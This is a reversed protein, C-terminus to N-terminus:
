RGRRGRNRLGRAPAADLAAILDDQLAWLEVDYEVYIRYNTAGYSELVRMNYLMGRLVPHLKRGIFIYRGHRDSTLICSLQRAVDALVRKGFMAGVLRVMLSRPVLAGPIPARSPGVIGPFQQLWDLVTTSRPRASPAPEPKPGAVWEHAFELLCVLIAWVAAFAAWEDPQPWHDPGCSIGASPFATSLRAVWVGLEKGDRRSLSALVVLGFLVPGLVDTLANGTPPLRVQSGVLAALCAGLAWGALRRPGESDLRSFRLVTM